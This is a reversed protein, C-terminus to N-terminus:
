ETINKVYDQLKSLQETVEDARAAERVLFERHEDSLQSPSAEYARCEPPATEIPKLPRNAREVRLRALLESVRRELDVKVQAYEEDKQQAVAREAIRDEAQKLQAQAISYKLTNLESQLSRKALYQYGATAFCLASTGALVYVAVRSFLLEIM